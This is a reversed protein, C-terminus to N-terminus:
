FFILIVLFEVIHTYNRSAAANLAEIYAYECIDLKSIYKLIEFEGLKSAIVFLINKDSRQLLINWDFKFSYYTYIIKDIPVIHSLVIKSYSINHFIRTISLPNKYQIIIESLIDQSLYNIYNMEQKTQLTVKKYIVM